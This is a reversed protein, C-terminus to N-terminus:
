GACFVYEIASWVLYYCKRGRYVSRYYGVHWDNKLTLGQKPHLDYGLMESVSRWDVYRFFTDYTIERSRDKMDNIVSATSSVCDTVFEFKSM